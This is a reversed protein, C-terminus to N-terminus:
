ELTCKIVYKSKILLDEPCEQFYITIIIIIIIYHRYVHINQFYNFGM